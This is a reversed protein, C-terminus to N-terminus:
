RIHSVTKTVVENAGVSKAVPCNQTAESPVDPFSRKGLYEQIIQAAMPEGRKEVMRLPRNTNEIFRTRHAPVSTGRCPLVLPLFPITLCAVNPVVKKNVFIFERTKLLIETKRASHLLRSRTPPPLSRVPNCAETGGEVGVLPFQGPFDGLLSPHM